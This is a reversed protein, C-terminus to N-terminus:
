FHPLNDYINHYDQQIVSKLQQLHQYKQASIQLRETYLSHVDSEREINRHVRQELNAWDKEFDLKYEINGDSLYKLAVIYNVHPDGARSGPRKSSRYNKTYFDSVFSTILTNSRNTHDSASTTIQLTSSTEKVETVSIYDDSTSPETFRDNPEAAPEGTINSTQPHPTETSSVLLSQAKIHGLEALRQGRTPYRSAMM